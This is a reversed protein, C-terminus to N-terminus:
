AAIALKKRRFWAKNRAHSSSIFARGALLPEVTFGRSSWTERKTKQQYTHVLLVQRCRGKAEGFARRMAAAASSQISGGFTADSTEKRGTEKLYRSPAEATDDGRAAGQWPSCFVRWQSLLQARYGGGKRGASAFWSGVRRWREIIAPKVIAGIAASPSSRNAVTLLNCSKTNLVIPFSERSRGWITRRRCSRGVAVVFEAQQDPREDDLNNDAGLRSALRRHQFVNNTSVEQGAAAPNDGPSGEDELQDVNGGVIGVVRRMRAVSVRKLSGTVFPGLEVVNVVPPKGVKAIDLALDLVLRGPDSTAVLADAALGDAQLDERGIHQVQRQNVQWSKCLNPRRRSTKTTFRVTSIQNLRKPAWQRGVGLYRSAFV